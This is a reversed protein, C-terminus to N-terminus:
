LEGTKGTDVSGSVRVGDEIGRDGPNADREVQGLGAARQSQVVGEAGASPIVARAHHGIRSWVRARQAEQALIALPNPNALLLLFGATRRQM